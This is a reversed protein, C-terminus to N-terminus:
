IISTEEASAAEALASFWSSLLKGAAAEEWNLATDDKNSANDKGKGKEHEELDEILEQVIIDVPPENKDTNNKSCGKNDCRSEDNNEESSVGLAASSFKEGSAQKDNNTNSKLGDPSCDVENEKVLLIGNDSTIITDTEDLGGSLLFNDDGKVNGAADASEEGVEDANDVLVDLGESLFLWLFFHHHHFFLLFWFLHHLLWFLLWLHVHHLFGGHITLCHTVTHSCSTGLEVSGVVINHFVAFVCVWQM